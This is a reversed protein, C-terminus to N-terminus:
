YSITLTLSDTYSDPAVYQASPVIIEVPISFVSGLGLSTFTTTGVTGDGLLEGNIKYINYNLKNNNLAGVMTRQTLTGSGAGFSLEFQSNKTCLTRIMSYKKTEAEPSVVGLVVPVSSVTCSASISATTNLNASVTDAFATGSMGFLAVLSLIIKNKM